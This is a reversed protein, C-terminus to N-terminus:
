RSLGGGHTTADDSEGGGDNEGQDTSDEDQQIGAARVLTGQGALLGGGDPHGLLSTPEPVVSLSASRPPRMLRVWTAARATGAPASLAISASFLLRTTRESMAGPCTTRSVANPVSRRPWFAMPTEGPLTAM